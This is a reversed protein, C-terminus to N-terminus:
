KPNQSAIYILGWIPQYKPHNTLTSRWTGTMKSPHLPALCRFIGFSFYRPPDFLCPLNGHRRLPGGLTFHILMQHVKSPGFLVNTQGQVSKFRSRSWSILLDPSPSPSVFSKVQCPNLNTENITTPNIPIASSRQSGPPSESNLQFQPDNEPAQPQISLTRLHQWPKLIQAVVYKCWYTPSRSTRWSFIVCLALHKLKRFVQEGEDIQWRDRSGDSDPRQVDSAQGCSETQFAQVSPKRVPKVSWSRVLTGPLLWHLSWQKKKCLAAASQWSVQRSIEVALLVKILSKQTASRLKTRDHSSNPYAFHLFPYKVNTESPHNFLLSWGLDLIPYIQLEKLEKGELDWPTSCPVAVQGQHNRQHISSAVGHAVTTKSWTSKVQGTPPM